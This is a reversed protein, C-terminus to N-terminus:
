VLHDRLFRGPGFNMFKCGFQGAKNPIVQSALPAAREYDQCLALTNNSWLFPIFQPSGATTCCSRHCRQLELTFNRDRARCLCACHTLPDPMAVAAISATFTAQIQDRAWSSWIGQPPLFSPLFSPLSPPFSPPLFSLSFSIFQPLKSGILGESM